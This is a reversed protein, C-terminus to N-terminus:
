RIITLLRTPEVVIVVVLMLVNDVKNVVELTVYFYLIKVNLIQPIQM